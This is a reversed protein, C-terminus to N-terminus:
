LLFGCVGQWTLHFDNVNFSYLASHFALQTANHSFPLDYPTLSPVMPYPPSLVKYATLLLWQTWRYCNSQLEEHNSTPREAESMPPAIPRVRAVAPIRTRYVNKQKRTLVACLVSPCISSVLSVSRYNSRDCLLPPYRNPAVNHNRSISKRNSSFSQNISQHHKLRDVIPREVHEGHLRCWVAVREFVDAVFQQLFVVKDSLVFYTATCTCSFTLRM